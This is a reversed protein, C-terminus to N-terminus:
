LCYPLISANPERGAGDGDFDLATLRFRLMRSGKFVMVTPTSPPLAFDFSGAEKEGVGEREGL